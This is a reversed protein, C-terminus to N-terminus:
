MNHLPLGGDGRSWNYNWLRIGHGRQGSLYMTMGRAIAISLRACVFQCTQRYSRGWKCALLKALQKTAATAEPGRLGDASFVLPRFHRRRQLYPELYKRKNAKEQNVLVKSPSSMLYSSVDTDTIRVDFIATHGRCWFGHAAVDGRDDPRDVPFGDEDLTAENGNNAAPESSVASPTLAQQCLGAWENTTGSTSWVESRASCPTTSAYANAVDIV